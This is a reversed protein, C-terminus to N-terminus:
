VLFRIQWVRYFAEVVIKLSMKSQGERREEFLIPVEKLIAGSKLGRYKMEIQFSYGESRVDKLNLTKLTRASWANFGGTWDNLPYGLIIKAYLSGFQSILKRYWAWNDTGGGQVYRSGVVIDSQKIADVLKGLDLIRHSFDADMQVCAEFGAELALQFGQLYAKGLGGKGPNSHLLIRPDSKAMEAVAEGTGDPSNDDVVLIHLDPYAKLVEPIMNRINDVENYTPFIVVTKMIATKIRFSQFCQFGKKAEKVQM